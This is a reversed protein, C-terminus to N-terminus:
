CKCRVSARELFLSELAFRAGTASVSLGEALALALALWALFSEGGSLIM